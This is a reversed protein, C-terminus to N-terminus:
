KHLKTAKKWYWTCSQIYDSANNYLQITRFRNNAQPILQLFLNRSRSFKCIAYLTKISYHHLDPLNQKSLSVLHVTLITGLVSKNTSKSNNIFGSFGHKKLPSYWNKRYRYPKEKSPIISQPLFIMVKITYLVKYKLSYSGSETFTKLMYTLTPAHQLRELNIIISWYTYAGSTDAPSLWM